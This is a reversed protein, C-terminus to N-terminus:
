EHELELIFMLCCSAHALHPLGSEQDYIEGSMYALQHRLAAAIYREKANEVKKWNNPAYKLAGFTLVKAIDLVALPPLLDCRAKGSDFKQGLSIPYEQKSLEIDKPLSDPIM